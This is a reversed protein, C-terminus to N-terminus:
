LAFGWGFHFSIVRIYGVLVVLESSSL